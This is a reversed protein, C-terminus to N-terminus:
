LAIDFENDWAAKVTITRDVPVVIEPQKKGKFFSGTDWKGNGNVDYLLRLSYEGPIFLAQNFVGNTVPGSFVV